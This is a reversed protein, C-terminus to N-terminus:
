NLRLVQPLLALVFAQKRTELDKLSGLDHPLERVYRREVVGGRAASYDTDAPLIQAAIESSRRVHIFRKAPISDVAHPACAACGGVIEPLFVLAAAVAVTGTAWAIRPSIRRKGM